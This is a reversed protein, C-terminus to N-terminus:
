VSCPSPRAGAANVKECRVDEALPFQPMAELAARQEEISLGIEAPRSRLMELVMQLEESAM